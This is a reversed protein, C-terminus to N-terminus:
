AIVGIVIFLYSDNIVTLWAFAYFGYHFKLADLRTGTSAKEPGNEVSPSFVLLYLLSALHCSDRNSNLNNGSYQM